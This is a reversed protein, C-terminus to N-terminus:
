KVQQRPRDLVVPEAIGNLDYVIKGDRITLECEFKENGLERQGMYDFFGFKGKRMNFVTIDAAAGESLNGLDERNIVKAPTWTSAAIVEKLPMGLALFKSMVSMMDKMANNMSATHLDTSITSPFFGAKIAPLGQAFSFSIGGYGVDFVIGKKRAEYVFPKVRNASMDYIAERAPELKAYTHTFIDGPRLHKSFLEDLSLAPMSGGFDIMVPMNVVKGAAVAHDVPTWEHGNYHAVKFGVIVDRNSGAVLAAMKSSMDTTDQEYAGGRMGEGVINLFALVRTKSHAIVNQRFLPFNRWGSSGADVVTTVGVRFTFGDPNLADLGNSLYHDPETGQFNHTHIDILGPVVYFGQANVTQKAQKTDINKAVKVIKGANVAIDMVADVSNKPDIVHGSRIVLDYAEQAFLSPNLVCIAVTCLLLFKKM